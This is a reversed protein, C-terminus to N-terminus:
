NENSRGPVISKQSLLERTHGLLEPGGLKGHAPVVTVVDPFKDIINKVSPAWDKLSADKTNGLGKASASRIICGGFLVKPKPLWVVINDETHGAGPYYVHIVGDLLTYDAGEFDNSAKELKQSELLQNTQESVVTKVSISNLYPIGSARDDHFHTSISAKLTLGSDNIWQALRPTDQEPWPTDIVYADKGEVVVLGNSPYFGYKPIKKFSTHLFVNEAIQRIEMKGDAQDASVVSPAIALVLLLSKIM